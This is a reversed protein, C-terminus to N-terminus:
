IQPIFASLVTIPECYLKADDPWRREKTHWALCERAAQENDFTGFNENSYYPIFVGCEWVVKNDSM